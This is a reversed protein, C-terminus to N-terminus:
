MKDAVCKGSMLRDANKSISQQRCHDIQDCMHAEPLRHVTCYRGGCYRCDGVIKAPRDQCGDHHCRGNTKKKLTGESQLSSSTVVLDDVAIKGSAGNTIPLSCALEDGDGGGYVAPALMISSDAPVESSEKLLEGEWVVRLGPAMCLRRRLDAVCEGQRVTIPIRAIGLIDLTVNNSDSAQAPSSSRSTTNNHNDM